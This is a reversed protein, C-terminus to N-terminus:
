YDYDEYASSRLLHEEMEKALKCHHHKSRIERLQQTSPIQSSEFLLIKTTTTVPKELHLKEEHQHIIAHTTTDSNAPVTIADILTTTILSSAPKDTKDEFKETQTTDLNATSTAITQESKTTEEEQSTSSITTLHSDNPTEPFITNHNINNGTTISISSTSTPPSYRVLKTTTTSTTSIKKVAVCRNFADLRQGQRCITKYAVPVITRKNRFLAPPSVLFEKPVFSNVLDYSDENSSFTDSNTELNKVPHAFLLCPLISLILYIKIRHLSDKQAMIM